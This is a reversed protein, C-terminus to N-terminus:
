KKSGENPKRRQGTKLYHDLDTNTVKSWRVTANLVTMCLKQIQPEYQKVDDNGDTSSQIIQKAKELNDLALKYETIQPSSVVVAVLMLALVQKSSNRQYLNRIVCCQKAYKAAKEFERQSNYIMAMDYLIDGRWVQLEQMTNGDKEKKSAKNQVNTKEEIEHQQENDNHKSDTNEDNKSTNPTHKQQLTKIHVNLAYCMTDYYRLADTHQEMAKYSLALVHKFRMCEVSASDLIGKSSNLAHVSYSIAKLYKNLEYFICAAQHYYRAKVLQLQVNNADSQLQHQVSNLGKKFLQLAVSYMGKEKFVRLQLLIKEYEPIDSAAINDVLAAVNSVQQHKKHSSSQKPTHKKPLSM